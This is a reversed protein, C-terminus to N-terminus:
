AIVGKQYSVGNLLVARMRRLLKRAIRVIAQNGRMRKTLQQYAELLAPDIRIAQWAAEILASRLQKHRRSTIGTDHETEGSSDTDPCFGIFDNLRDFPGFRKIDGVELLFLMATTSGVGPTSTLLEAKQHYKLKMLERLKREAKLLLQRLMKIEELMLLLTDQLLTDKKAEEEVWNMFNRSWNNKKGFQEPINIGQYKLLSKLRNKSRNLDGVLKKRFRILNREKQIDEDPVHIATLQHAAHNRALKLADVKDTKRKKEKDSSSVDAAHVVICEIGAATLERQLNFGWACSEYVCKFLAGPYHSHLHEILGQGNAAMRHNGLCIDDLVKAVQYDKEHVDIGVYITKGTFDIINRGKINTETTASTQQKMLKIKLNIILLTRRQLQFNSKRVAAAGFGKVYLSVQANKEKNM